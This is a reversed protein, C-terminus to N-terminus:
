GDKPGGAPRGPARDAHRRPSRDHRELAAAPPQEQIRPTAPARPCRVPISVTRVGRAQRAQLRVELARLSREASEIAEMRASVYGAVGPILASAVVACALTFTMQKSTGM